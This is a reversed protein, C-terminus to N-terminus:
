VSPCRGAGSICRLCSPTLARHPCTALQDDPAPEISGKQVSAASVIRYGVTPYRGAGGICRGCPSLVRRDPRAALHDNPAAKSTASVTVQISAPSVVGASVTPCRRAGHVHRSRPPFVFRHPGTAFHNDPASTIGHVIQM